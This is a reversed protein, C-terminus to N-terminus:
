FPQDLFHTLSPFRVFEFVYQLYDFLTSLTSKMIQLKCSGDLPFSDVNFTFSVQLVRKNTKCYLKSCFLKSKCHVAGIKWLVEHDPGINGNFRNVTIAM